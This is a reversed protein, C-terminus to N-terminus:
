RGKGTAGGVSGNAGYALAAARRLAASAQRAALAARKRKMSWVRWSLYEVRADKEAVLGAPDRNARCVQSPPFFSRRRRGAHTLPTSM